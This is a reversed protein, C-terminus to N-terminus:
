KRAQPPRIIRIISYKAVIGSRQVAASYTVTNSWKSDMQYGARFLVSDAQWHPSSPSIKTYGKAEVTGSRSKVKVWYVSSPKGIRHANRSLHISSGVGEEYINRHHNGYHCLKPNCDVWYEMRDVGNSPIWHTGLWLDWPKHTCQLKNWLTNTTPLICFPPMKNRRAFSLLPIDIMLYIRGVGWVWSPRCM